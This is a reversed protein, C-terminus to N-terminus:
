LDFSMSCYCVEAGVSKTGVTQMFVGKSLVNGTGLSEMTLRFMQLPTMHQNIRNGGAPTALYAILQTLLHGNM